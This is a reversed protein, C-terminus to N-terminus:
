VGRFTTKFTTDEKRGLKGFFNYYKGLKPIMSHQGELLNQYQDIGFPLKRSNNFSKIYWVWQKEAYQMKDGYGERGLYWMRQMYKWIIYYSIAAIAREDDPVLPYGTQEDLVQRFFSIAISGEKFSFRIKDQVLTYEDRIDSNNYIAPDEECVISDFFTHNALRVPTYARKYFNSGMWASYEYQLDFYPRYYALEYGGIAQGNCDLPVPCTSCSQTVNPIEETISDLIVNGAVCEIKNTQTWLNNRAIQYIGQLGNPIDIEYDKVEMFAVADESISNISMFGLSEGAWEILDTESIEEVGLDRYIKSIVRDLSIYQLHRAM